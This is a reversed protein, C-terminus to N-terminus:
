ERIIKSYKRSGNTFNVELMYIGKSLNRTNIMTEHGGAKKEIVKSGQITYLRIASLNFQSAVNLEDTVPNPYAFFSTSNQVDEVKTLVDPSLVHITFANLQRYIYGLSDVKLSDCFTHVCGTPDSVTLCLNYEGTSAYTHVPYQATDQYGDGFDWLFNLGTGTSLNVVSIDYPAMAVIAYFANCGQITTTVTDAQITNCFTDTCIGDDVILCVNFTGPLAYSHAPFRSASTNGDGLDWNYTATTGPDIVSMDIFTTNLGQQYAYFSAQCNTPQGGAHVWACSHCISIGSSDGDACVNYIGPSAFQHTVMTGTDSSNDGFDWHVNPMFSNLYFDFSLSNATDEVSVFSCYTSVSGIYVYNSYQCLLNGATDTENMLVFQNGTSNFIHQVTDGTATSGDEFEWNYISNSGGQYLTFTTIGNSTASNWSCNNISQGLYIYECGRYFNGATDDATYCVWYNGDDPFTHNLSIGTDTTGDGFDWSVVNAGNLIASFSVNNNANILYGMGCDGQRAILMNITAICTDNTLTNVQTCKILYTRIGSFAHYVPSGTLYTGDDFDWYVVTNPGAYADFEYLPPAPTTNTNVGIFCTGGTAHFVITDCFNCVMVNNTDFIELCVAIDAMSYYWHTVQSGAGTNGDGFDWQFTYLADDYSSDAMFTAIGSGSALAYTYGCNQAKAIGFSLIFTILLIQNKM